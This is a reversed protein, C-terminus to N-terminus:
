AADDLLFRILADKRARIDSSTFSFQVVPDSSLFPELFVAPAFIELKYMESIPDYSAVTEFRYPIKPIEFPPRSNKLFFKKPFNKM